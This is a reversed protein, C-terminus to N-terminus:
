RCKETSIALSRSWCWDWLDMGLPFTVSVTRRARLAFRFRDFYSRRPKVDAIKGEVGRLAVQELQEVADALNLVGLNYAVLVVLAGLSEGKDLHLADIFGLAGDIFQVVLLEEAALQHHATRFRALVM